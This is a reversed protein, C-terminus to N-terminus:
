LKQYAPFIEKQIFEEAVTKGHTAAIAGVLSTTITSFIKKPKYSDESSATKCFFIKDIGKTEAFDALFKDSWQLRHALSGIAAFSKTNISDISTSNEVLVNKSASFQLLQEGFYSLRSNYPKSGHAFSKHTLIQLLTSDPLSINATQLYNKLHKINETTNELSYLNGNATLVETPDRILGQVRGGRVYVIGRRQLIFNRSINM